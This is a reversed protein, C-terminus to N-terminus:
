KSFFLQSFALGKQINAIKLNENAAHMACDENALPVLVQPIKLERVFLTVIPLTGGVYHKAVKKRYVTELADIAQRVYDNNTDLKVGEDAGTTEIKFSVYSPFKRKAFNKIAAIIRRPNQNKVLRVNIKASALCPVSNRYGEGVYGSKIGTIQITPRLGVQTYADFGPETLLKKVGAIKQFRKLNFADDKNNKLIDATIRDVGTYFGPIAVRNYRDYLLSLFKSLEYAANSVAGGYIGSHLDTNSTKVTLTLNFTGRFSLEITPYSGVIEGDSILIFDSALEQKYKKIFRFIGESGTEENGEILFKINYALRRQRILNAIAFIHILIQGKNDVVGRGYLRGRDEFLEFPDKRWGENKAAPQVDYHGYVLCTEINHSVAYSALVIPNGFGRIIKVKFRNEELLKKLWLVAKEIEAQFARDTSVSKFSVFKSLLKKYDSFLKNM